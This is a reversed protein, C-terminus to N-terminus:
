WGQGFPPVGYDRGASKLKAATFKFNVRQPGDVQISSDVIFASTPPFTIVNQLRKANIDIVQYVDGAKTGFFGANKLIFLTEKETTWLLKWTASLLKADTTAIGLQGQKLQKVLDIIQAQVQPQTKLGRETGELATFLSKVAQQKSDVARALIAARRLGPHTNSATCPRYPGAPCRQMCAM